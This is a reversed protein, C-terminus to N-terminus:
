RTGPKGLASRVQSLLADYKEKWEGMAPYLKSTKSLNQEAQQLLELKEQGSKAQAIAVHCNAMEYRSEYFTERFQPHSVAALAIKGWGWISQNKGPTAIGNVAQEYRSPDQEGWAQLLRAAAVQVNISSPQQQLIDQYLQLASDYQKTHFRVGALQAKSQTTLEPSIDPQALLNEFANDSQEYYRKANANLEGSGDDFGAALKAFTDAVWNLVSLDDSGESLEGLFAEFVGSMQVKADDSASEMQRQVDQALNVYVGLMRQKGSEDQGLLEQMSAIASKTKDMVDDGGKDLQAVYARLATRYSEEAFIPNAAASHDQQVLTLPGISEHELVEVAKAFAQDEVYIQALSLAGTAVAQDVTPEDPIRQFAAQLLKKAQGKLRALQKTTRERKASNTAGQQEPAALEQQLSRFQGWIAQGTLWEFEARNTSEPPFQSVFTAARTPHGANILFPILSGATQLTEPEGPWTESVYEGLSELRNTEFTNDSEQEALKLYSALVIKACQKAGASTPYRRAVFEGVMAADFFDQKLFYVYCLFYRVLNVNSQATTEDALQLALRYYHIADNQARTLEQQASDRQSVLESKKNANKEAAIQNNLNTVSAALPGIADLSEKAVSQAAMFTEPELDESVAGSEGLQELMQQAKEQYEGSESAVFRLADTAFSMSKAALARNPPSEGNADDAQMKLARALHYRIAIWQPDREKDNPTEDFWRTARKIAEVYKKEGPSLWAEMAMALTKSKLIMLAEPENPQDLLEGFYGLAKKTDGLRWYCRGQYMRAYRGALRTRYDKYIGDYMDAAEVIYKTQEKSGTPLIDALEERIAAAFLETQLYDARLQTRQEILKAEERDRTNLVKPIAELQKAVSAQLDSFVKFSQEYLKRAQAAQQKDNSRKSDEHKMRAREVFLSGIQNRAANVKSHDPQSSIFQELWQQAQNIQKAREASDRQSRSADVLLQSKEYLISNKLEAPALPSDQMQTLYDMAIDHYGRSQLGNLFERAPEASFATGVWLVAFVFISTAPKM